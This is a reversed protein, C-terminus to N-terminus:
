RWSPPSQPCSPPVRAEEVWRASNPVDVPLDVIGEVNERTVRQDRAERADLFVADIVVTARVEFKENSDRSARGPEKSEAHSKVFM